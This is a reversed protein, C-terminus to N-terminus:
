RAAAAAGNLAFITVGEAQYLLQLEPDRRLRDVDLTRGWVQHPRGVYLHTIGLRRLEAPSGQGSQLAVVARTREITERWFSPDALVYLMNEATTRRGTFYPIWYGGDNGYLHEDNVLWTNVAFRAEPPTNAAIWNMAAVDGATVFFYQPLVEEARARGAWLGAALGVALLAGAAWARWRPRLRRVAAEAGAGVLLGLPLYLALLVATMNTFQLLPIGLVYASGLLWLAAIWGFALLAVRSRNLVALLGSGAALLLLWLRAGVELVWSWSYAYYATMLYDYSERREPSLLRDTHAVYARWASGLAPATLLLAGAGVALVGLVLPRWRGARQALGGEWVITMALLPLFYGAVRFHLQFVAAMLLATVGVNWAWEMPRPGAPQRLQELFRWFLWWAILLIAQSAVPTFRGWSMLIAPQFSLLGATVAGLIGGLRSAKDDLVVYIGLGCLGNLAQAMWLLATHAPAQALNAAAAALAHLGLHYLDLPVPAYPALTEPLRGQEATLRTILAHHLSDPSPPFPVERIIWFRTFLTVALVGLAVWELPTFALQARWRGRWQWLAAVGAALLGIRLTWPGLRLGPAAVRAAYYLVPFVAISLAIAVAWRRLVPWEKWVPTLGLLAWGPVTLMLGLAVALRLSSGGDLFYSWTM